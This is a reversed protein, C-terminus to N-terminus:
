LDGAKHWLIYVPDKDGKGSRARIENIELDIDKVGLRVCKM